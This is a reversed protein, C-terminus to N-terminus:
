GERRYRRVSIKEPSNELLKLFCFCDLLFDYLLYWKRVNVHSQFCMKVITIYINKNRHLIRNKLM